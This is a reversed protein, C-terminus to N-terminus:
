RTPVKKGCVKGVAEAVPGLVGDACRLRRVLHLCSLVAHATEPDERWSHSADVLAVLQVHLPALGIRNALTRRRAPLPERFDPTLTAVGLATDENSRGAVAEFTRGRAIAEHLMVTAEVVSVWYRRARWPFGDMAEAALPTAALRVAYLHSLRGPTWLAAAHESRALSLPECEASYDATLRHDHDFHV